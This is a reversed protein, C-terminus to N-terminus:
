LHHLHVNGIATVRVVVAVHAYCVRHNVIRLRQGTARCVVTVSSSHLLTTSASSGQRQSDGARSMAPRRQSATPPIIARRPEKSGLPPASVGSHPACQGSGPLQLPQIGCLKAFRCVSRMTDQHHHRLSALAPWRRLLWRVCEGRVLFQDNSVRLRPIGTCVLHLGIWFRSPACLRSLSSFTASRPVSASLLAIM